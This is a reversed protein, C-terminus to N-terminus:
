IDRGRHQLVKSHRYWTIDIALREESTARRFASAANSLRRPAGGGSGLASPGDDERTDLVPRRLTAYEDVPESPPRQTREVTTDATLRASGTPRTANASLVASRACVA